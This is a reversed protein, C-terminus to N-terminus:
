AWASGNWTKTLNATTGDPTRLNVTDGAVLYATPMPRSFSPTNGTINLLICWAALDGDWAISPFAATGINGYCWIPTRAAAARSAITNLSLGQYNVTTVGNLYYTGGQAFLVSDLVQLAPSKIKSVPVSGAQLVNGALFQGVDMWGMGKIWQRTMYTTGDAGVLTVMDGTVLNKTDTPSPTVGPQNVGLNQQICWIAVDDRWANTSFNSLSGVSVISGRSTGSSNSLALQKAEDATKAATSATSATSSASTVLDNIQIQLKSLSQASAGTATSNDTTTTTASGSLADKMQQTALLKGALDTASISATLGGGLDITIDGAKIERKSTNLKDAVDQLPKLDSVMVVRDGGRGTLTELIQNISQAWNDVAPVGSRLASLGPLKPLSM